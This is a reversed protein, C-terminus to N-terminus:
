ISAEVGSVIIYRWILVRLKCESFVWKSWDGHGKLRLFFFILVM